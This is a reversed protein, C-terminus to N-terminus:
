CRFLYPSSRSFGLPASHRVKDANAVMVAAKARAALHRYAKINHQNEERFALQAFAACFVRASPADPAACIAAAIEYALEEHASSTTTTTSSSSSSSSSQPQPQTHQVDAENLMALMVTAAHTANVAALASAVCVYVCM